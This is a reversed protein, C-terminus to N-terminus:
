FDCMSFACRVGIRHLAGFETMASDCIKPCRTLMNIMYFFYKMSAKNKHRCIVRIQTACFSPV